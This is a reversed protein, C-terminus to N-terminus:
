LTRLFHKDAAKKKKLTRLFHDRLPRLFHGNDRLSRLFHTTVKGRKLFGVPEANAEFFGLDDDEDSFPNDSRLSRLFHGGRIARPREMSDGDEILELGDENLQM